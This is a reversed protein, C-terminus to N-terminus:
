CIVQFISLAEQSLKKAESLKAFVYHSLEESNMPNEGKNYKYIGAMYIKIYLCKCIM